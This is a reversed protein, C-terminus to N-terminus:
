KGYYPCRRNICINNGNAWGCISCQYNVALVYLGRLDSGILRAPVVHGMDNMFFIGEAHMFVREPSIYTKELYNETIEEQDFSEQAYGNISTVLSFLSVFTMMLIKRITM